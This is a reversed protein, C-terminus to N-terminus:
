LRARLNLEFLRSLQSTSVYLPRSSVKLGARQKLQGINTAPDAQLSRDPRGPSVLRVVVM